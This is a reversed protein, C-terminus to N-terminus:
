IQRSRITGSCPLTKQPCKWHGNQNGTRSGYHCEEGMLLLNLTNTTSRLTVTALRKLAAASWDLHKFKGDDKLVGKWLKKAMIM